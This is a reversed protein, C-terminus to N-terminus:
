QKWVWVNIAFEFSTSYDTLEIEYEINDQQISGKAKCYEEYKKEYSLEIGLSNFDKIISDLCSYADDLSGIQSRDAKFAYKLRRQISASGTRSVMFYFYDISLGRYTQTMKSENDSNFVFLSYDDGSGNQVTFLSSLYNKVTYFSATYPNSNGQGMPKELFNKLVSEEGGRYPSSGKKSITAGTEYIKEGDMWIEVKCIGEKYNTAGDNGFGSLIVSNTGPKIITKEKYSFGVPSSSGYVLDGSSKFYRLYLTVEQNNSYKGSYYIKPKLYQVEGDILPQGYDSIIRGDRAANAFSINSISLISSQVIPTAGSYLRVEQQHLMKNKYWVEMKYLGANFSGGNSNGWGPLIINKGSGVEVRVDKSYTFGDPSAVGTKLKGDEDFLKINLTIEKESSALSNYTIKPLLYKVEKAYLKKGFNDIITNNGDSNAFSIDSIEMYGVSANKSSTSRSRQVSASSGRKEDSSTQKRETKKSSISAGVKSSKGAGVLKSQPYATISLLGFLIISIITKM